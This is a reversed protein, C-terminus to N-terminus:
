WCQATAQALLSDPQCLILADGLQFRTGGAEQDGADREDPHDPLGDRPSTVSTVQSEKILGELLAKPQHARQQVVQPLQVRVTKEEAIQELKKGELRFYRVRGAGSAAGTRQFIPIRNRSTM